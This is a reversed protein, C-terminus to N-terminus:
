AIRYTINWALWDASAWAFPASSTVVGQSSTTIGYFSMTTAGTGVYATGPGILSASADRVMCAGPWFGNTITSAAPFPLTVSYQGSGAAVGTGAFWFSGRYFCWKGDVLNYEGIIGGSTGLNPNGGSGTLTPNYTVPVNQTLTTWNGAATRSYMDGSDLLVNMGPYPSPVYSLAAISPARLNGDQGVHTAVYTVNGASISSAGSTVTVTALPLDWSGTTGENQTASPAGAGPTGAIVVVNVDWTTRSLRLVVLDTRTSGSANSSIAKTVITSGSWWEHGRVLAYRDSAIKVQMGSSDGYVLQPSTFDGVVGARPGFSLGLKEYQSDDIVRSNSPSPWSSEAV